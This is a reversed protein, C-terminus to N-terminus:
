RPLLELETGDLNMVSTIAEFSGSTGQSYDLAYVKDNVINIYYGYSIGEYIEKQNKGNFDISYLTYAHSYGDSSTSSDAIVYFVNSKYSNIRAITDGGSYRITKINEGNIDSIKINNSGDIYIITGEGIIFQTVSTLILEANTGDPNAKYISNDGLYYLVDDYVIGMYSGTSIVQEENNGDLDSRYLSYTLSSNRKVYYLWDNYFNMNFCFGDNIKEYSSGDAKMKFLNYTGDITSGENGSFYIYGDKMSFSWGFGNFIISTQNNNSMYIHASGDEDFSSYYISDGSDFYYQGNIINGLDDLNVGISVQSSTLDEIINDVNTAEEGQGCGTILILTFFILIKKM